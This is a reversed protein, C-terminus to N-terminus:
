TSVGDLFGVTSLGLPWHRAYIRDLNIKEHLFVLFVVTFPDLLCIAPSFETLTLIQMFFQCPLKEM